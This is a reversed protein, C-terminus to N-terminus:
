WAATPTAPSGEWPKGWEGGRQRERRERQKQRRSFRRQQGLVAWCGAHGQAESGVSTCESERSGAGAPHPTQPPRWQWPLPPPSSQARASSPVGGGGGSGAGGVELEPTVVHKLVGGTQRWRPLSYDKNDNTFCKDMMPLWNMNWFFAM